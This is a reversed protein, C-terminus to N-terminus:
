KTSTQTWPTKPLTAKERALCTTPQQTTTTTTTTTTSPPILPTNININQINLTRLELM